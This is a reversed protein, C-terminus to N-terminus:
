ETLYQKWDFDGKQGRLNIFENAIKKAQQNDSDTVARLITHLDDKKWARWEKGPYKESTLLLDVSKEVNEYCHNAVYEMIVRVPFDDKSYRLILKLDPYTDALGVPVNKIWRSFARLEQPLDEFQGNERICQFRWQWLAWLRDWIENEQSFDVNDMGMGIEFVVSGRTEDNAKAFFSALLGDDSDIEIWKWIYMLFIHDGIRSSLSDRIGNQKAFEDLFDLSVQYFPLLETFSSKVPNRHVIYGLWTMKWNEFVDPPFLLDSIEKFWKSDFEIIQPLFEGFVLNVYSNSLALQEQLLAKCQEM